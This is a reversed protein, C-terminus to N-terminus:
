TALGGKIATKAAGRLVPLVVPALLWLGAAVVLGTGIGGETLTEAANEWFAM